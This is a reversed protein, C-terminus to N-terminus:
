GDHDLHMYGLQNTFDTEEWGWNVDGLPNQGDSLARLKGIWEGDDPYPSNGIEASGVCGGVILAAILLLWPRRNSPLSM